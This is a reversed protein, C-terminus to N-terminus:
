IFVHNNIEGFRIYNKIVEKPTKKLISHFREKNYHNMYSSLNINLEKVKLNEFNDYSYSLHERILSENFREVKGNQNPFGPHITDHSIGKNHLEVEFESLIKHVSGNITRKKTYVYESGNDTRVHIIKIRNKNFFNISRKIFDISNSRCKEDYCYAFTLRSYQEIATYIHYKSKKNVLELENINVGDLQIYGPTMVEFRKYTKIIRPKKRYIRMNINKNFTPASIKVKFKKNIRSLLTLKTIYYKQKKNSLSRKVFKRIEEWPYHYKINKPRRSKYSIDANCLVKKSYKYFRTKSIKFSSICDTLNFETNIKMECINYITNLYEFSRDNSNSEKIIKRSKNRLNIIKEKNMNINYFFYVLFLENHTNINCILLIKTTSWIFPEKSLIDVGSYICSSPTFKFSKSRAYFFM